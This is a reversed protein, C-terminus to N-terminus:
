CCTCLHRKSFVPWDWSPGMCLRQPDTEVRFTPLGNRVCGHRASGCVRRWPRQAFRMGQM